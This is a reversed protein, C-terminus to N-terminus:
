QFGDEFILDSTSAEDAGIDYTGYLNAANLNNVGRADGDIDLSSVGSANYCYDIAPSGEALHYNGTAPSIFITNLDDNNVSVVPGPNFSNNEHVLACEIYIQSLQGTKQYIDVANDLIISSYVAVSGEINEIIQETVHNDVVTVYDLFITAIHNNGSQNVFLQDDSYNGTGNQGNNNIISNTIKLNGGSNSRSVIGELARNKTILAGTVNIQSDKRPAFVGGNIAKNGIFQLCASPAWCSEETMEYNVASITAEDNSYVAGGALTAHNNKILANYVFVSSNDISHIAGGNTEATNGSLEVPSNSDGLSIGDQQGSAFGFLLATADDSTAIAGGASAENNIIQTPSYISVFCNKDVRIGGGYTAQNDSILSQGAVKLSNNSGECVIGGEQNFSVQSNNILLHSQGGGNGSLLVGYIQNNFAWINDMTVNLTSDALPLIFAGVFGKAFILNRLSINHSEGNDSTLYIAHDFSNATITAQSLDSINIAAQSCDAYGGILKKSQNNIVINEFYNKNSAIRIVDDSNSDIAEQISDYNCANDGGVTIFAQVQSILMLSLLTITKKYM